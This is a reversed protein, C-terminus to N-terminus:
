NHVPGAFDHMKAEFLESFENIQSAFLSKRDIGARRMAHASTAPWHRSKKRRPDREARECGRGGGFGPIALGERIAGQPEGAALARDFPGTKWGEHEVFAFIAAHL